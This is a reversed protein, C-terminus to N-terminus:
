GLSCHSLTSTRSIENHRDSARGPLWFWDVDREKRQKVNVWKDDHFNLFMSKRLLPELTFPSHFMAALDPM